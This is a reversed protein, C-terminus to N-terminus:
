VHESNGRMITKFNNVKIELNLKWLSLSCKLIGYSRIQGNIVIKAQLLQNCKAAMTNTKAVSIM